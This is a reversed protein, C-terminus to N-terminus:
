QDSRAAHNNCLPQFRRDARFLRVSAAVKAIQWNLRFTSDLNIGAVHIAATWAVIDYAIAHGWNNNSAIKANQVAIQYQTEATYEATDAIMGSQAGALKDDTKKGLFTFLPGVFGKMIGAIISAILAGM